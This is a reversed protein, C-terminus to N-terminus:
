VTKEIHFGIETHLALQCPFVDGRVNKTQVFFVAPEIVDTLPGEIIIILFAEVGCLTLLNEFTKAGAIGSEGSM